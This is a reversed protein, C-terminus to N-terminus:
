KKNVMHYHYGGPDDCTCQKTCPKQYAPLCNCGGEDCFFLEELNCGCCDNNSVLGDYGHKILWEAVIKKVNM